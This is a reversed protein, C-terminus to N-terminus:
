GARLAKKVVKEFKPDPNIWVGYVKPSASSKVVKLLKALRQMSLQTEDQRGEAFFGINEVLWRRLKGMMKRRAIFELVEAVSRRSLSVGFISSFERLKAKKSEAVDVVCSRMLGKTFPILREMSSLIEVFAVDLKPMSEALLMRAVGVGRFSPHVVVRQVRLVNGFRESLYWDTNFLRSFGAPKLFPTSYVVVGVVREGLRARFVRAVGGLRHSRYHLFSLLKWDEVGGEEVALRSLLSCPKERFEHRSLKLGPGFHKVIFLSPSLDEFLDDVATAAVLTIKRRRALRQVTYATAKATERDLSSCFEDLVVTKAGSDLAKAFVFRMRQGDSLEEFCRFWTFVDSLGASSLTEVAQRVDRGVLEVLPRRRSIRSLLNWSCVVPSFEPHKEMEAALHRLLLSKGGGSEGTVYVVDGPEVEIAADRYVPLRVDDVDVGMLEAVEGVRRSRRVVGEFVKTLGTKLGALGLGAAVREEGYFVPVRFVAM